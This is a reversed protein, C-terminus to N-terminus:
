NKSAAIAKSNAGVMTMTLKYKKSAYATEVKYTFLTDDKSIAGDANETSTALRSLKATTLSLTFPNVTGQISFDIPGAAAYAGAALLASAFSKM